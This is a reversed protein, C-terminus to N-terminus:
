SNLVDVLEQILKECNGTILIDDVCLLLVITKKQHHYKFLSPDTKSCSFGFYILFHSFTDFWARPAQKLGYLVKTLRCVHHPKQPDVFGPPQYMYVLEQLEGHFFAHCIWKISWGKAIAVQLVLRITATRVVHSFTELYDLGEEQENGRAVLRAKLCEVTGDPRFKVTFVLRSTLINIPTPVLEWMHLLHVKNLENSVAGDWGPHKMAETINRPEKVSYKLALLAYRTNPKNTGAKRRTQMPHTNVVKEQQQIEEQQHIEQQKEM